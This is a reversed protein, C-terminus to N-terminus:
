HAPKQQVLDEETTIIQVVINKPLWFYPVVINKPVVFALENIDKRLLIQHPEFFITTGFLNTGINKFWQTRPRGPVRKRHDRVGV